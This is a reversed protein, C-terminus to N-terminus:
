VSAEHRQETPTMNLLMVGGIIAFLGIGTLCSFPEEWLIIGIIATLATGVGSWIAYAFSLTITKLSLSLFYFALGFGFIFSITPLLNTFGNSVKMMTTGFVEFFIAVILHIYGKM